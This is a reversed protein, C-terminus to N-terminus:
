MVQQSKEVLVFGMENAKKKLAALRRAQFKAEYEKAGQVVYEMGKTLLYYIREALKRATATIAIPMGRRIMIRRFFAGLATQSRLLTLAAIRLATSIRNKVKRTQRKKIKGGTKQNNPSLGLWSTFHKVTPFRSLDTGLESIITVTTLSSIGEISSLDEGTIKKSMEDLDTYPQNKRRKEKNKGKKTTPRDEKIGDREGLVKMMELMKEDTQAIRQQLFDYIELAQTLGYVHAPRYNGELAEIMEQKDAKLGSHCYSYLKEPDREGQVIARMIKMGSVGSIDSLVKHIQVNMQEMAKQMKQIQRSADEVLSRRDRWMSRIDRIELPPVFAETLLGFYHLTRIWQADLVDTKRGSLNKAKRADVLAAKIGYEELVDFIPLWYNGTSEAAVTKVGCKKLGEAMERLSRTCVVFERVPEDSVEPSVAVFHSYAGVDIGASYPNVITLAQKQKKLAKVKEAEEAMAKENKQSAKKIDEVNIQKM